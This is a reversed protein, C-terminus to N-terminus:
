ELIISFKGYLILALVLLKLKKNLPNEVAFRHFKM